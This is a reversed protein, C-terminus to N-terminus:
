GDYGLEAPHRFLISGLLNPLLYNPMYNVAVTYRFM